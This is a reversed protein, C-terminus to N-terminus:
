RKLVADIEDIEMKVVAIKENFKSPDRTRSLSNTTHGLQFKELPPHTQLVSLPIFGSESMKGDVGTHRLTRTLVRGFSSAEERAMLEKEENM